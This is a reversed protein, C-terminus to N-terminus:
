KISTDSAHQLGASIPQQLMSQDTALLDFLSNARISSGDSDEIVRDIASAWSASCFETSSDVVKFDFEAVISTQTVSGWTPRPPTAENLWIIRGRAPVSQDWTVVTAPLVFLKM